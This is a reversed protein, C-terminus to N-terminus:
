SSRRRELTNTLARHHWHCLLPVDVYGQGGAEGHLLAFPRGPEGLDSLVAVAGRPLFPFADRTYASVTILAPLGAARAAELGNPSDEVAMAAEPPLGLRKLVYLYIDPAPKKRPVVDGAGIAAFWQQWDRGLNKQFIPDLNELSTTTALALKLGRSRAEDFLRLVGPRFPLRGELVAETFLRTKERHLAQVLGEMDEPVGPPHHRHIYHRLREKGGTIRLLAKYLHPDWRWPLHFRAFAANFAQRHLEESEVLTGDVDFILAKLGCAM